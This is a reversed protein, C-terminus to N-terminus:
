PRYTLLDPNRAMFSRWSERTRDEVRRIRDHIILIFAWTITEHYLGDAGKAAAFRQVGERLRSLCAEVPMEQLYLWTVRVHEPHGFAELTCQEFGDILDRDSLERVCPARDVLGNSEKAVAM